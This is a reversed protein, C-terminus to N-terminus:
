RGLGRTQALVARVQLRTPFQRSALISARASLAEAHLANSAATSGRSSVLPVAPHTLTKDTAAASLLTRDELEVGSVSPSWRRPPRRLSGFGADRLAKKLKRFM